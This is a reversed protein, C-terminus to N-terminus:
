GFYQEYLVAFKKALADYNEMIAAYKEKSLGTLRRANDDYMNFTGKKQVVLYAKFDLEEVEVEITVKVSKM